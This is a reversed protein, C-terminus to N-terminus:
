IVRKSEHCLNKFNIYDSMDTIKFNMFEGSILKIKMGVKYALETSGNINLLDESSITDHAKLYAKLNFAEPAQGAFLENRNLLSDIKTGDKSLYITDKVRLVPLVGKFDGHCSSICEDILKSSVLPRAADHIVVIDNDSIECSRVIQELGNRISLQRTAGPEAYTISKKCGILIASEKILPIWEKAAVIVIADINANNAFTDMCFSIIPRGEVPLYQKPIDSGLRLGVGGSLIISFNM